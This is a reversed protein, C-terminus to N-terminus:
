WHTSYSAPHLVTAGPLEPYLFAGKIDIGTVVLSFIISLAFLLRLSKENTTPAFVSVFTDKILNGLVVLRGKAKMFMGTSDKKKKLDMKTPYVPTGAPIDEYRVRQGTGMDELTALEQDCAPKWLSEWETGRQAQALTPNDDTHEKRKLPRSTTTCVYGDLWHPAHHARAGSPADPHNVDNASITYDGDEDYDDDADVASPGSFLDVPKPYVHIREEHDYPSISPELPIPPAPTTLVDDYNIGDRPEGELAPIPTTPWMAEESATMRTVPISDDSTEEHSPHWPAGCLEMAPPSAGPIPPFQVTGDDAIIPVLQEIERATRNLIPSHLKVPRVDHRVFFRRRGRSPIYLLPDHHSADSIGVVYGFEGHPAFTGGDAKRNHM